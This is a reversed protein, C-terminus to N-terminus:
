HLSAVCLGATVPWGLGLVWRNYRREVRYSRDCRSVGYTSEVIVIHPRVAPLDAACM